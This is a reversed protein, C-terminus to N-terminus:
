KDQRCPNTLGFMAIFGFQEIFKKRLKHTEDIEQRIEDAYDNTSRNNYEKITSVCNLPYLDQDLEIHDCVVLPKALLNRIPDNTLSFNFTINYLIVETTDLIENKKIASFLSSDNQFCEDIFSGNFGSSYLIGVTDSLLQFPHLGLNLLDVYSFNCKFRRRMFEILYNFLYKHTYSKQVYVPFLIRRWKFKFYAKIDNIYYINEYYIKMKTRIGRYFFDSFYIKENMQTFNMHTWEDASTNFDVATYEDERIVTRKFGLLPRSSYISIVVGTMEVLQSMLWYNLDNYNLYLCVSVSDSEKDQYTYCEKHFFNSLICAIIKDTKFMQVFDEKYNTNFYYNVISSNIEFINFIDEIVVLCNATKQHFDIKQYNFIFQFINKNFLNDKM